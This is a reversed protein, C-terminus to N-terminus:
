PIQALSAILDGLVGLGGLDGLFSLYRLLDQAL